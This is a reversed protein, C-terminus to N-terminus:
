PQGGEMKSMAKSRDRIMLVITGIAGFIFGLPCIITALVFFVPEEIDFFYSVVNHLVAFVPLGVSTAGTILLFTNIAGAVKNKITLVFLAIGLVGLVPWAAFVNYRFIVDRLSTFMTLGSFIFVAVLM